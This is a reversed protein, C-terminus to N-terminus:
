CGRSLVPLWCQVSHSLPYLFDVQALVTALCVQRILTSKGGMNPGTLLMLSPTNKGGLEVDNPVFGGSSTAISCPHRLGKASFIPYDNESAIVFDPCCM